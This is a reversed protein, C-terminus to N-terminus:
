RPRLHARGPDQHGDSWRDKIGSPEGFEGLNQEGWLFREIESPAERSRGGELEDQGPPCIQACLGM